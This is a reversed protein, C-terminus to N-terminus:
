KHKNQQPLFQKLVKWAADLSQTGATTSLGRRPASVQKAFVKRQHSVQVIPVKLDKATKQWSLAVDAYLAYQM